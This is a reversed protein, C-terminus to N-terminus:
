SSASPAPAPASAPPVSGSTSPSPQPKPQEVETGTKENGGACTAGAEVSATKRLTKIFEDVREDSAKDVKLQFGWAQLSIPSGQDPYQSMMIYDGAGQVKKTLEAIDAQSAKAPDYTIWVAGHEMSHVAHENPIPGAYVNGMCTQWRGNHKGGSPPTSFYQVKGQVHDGNGEALVKEQSKRFNVVGSIEEARDEFTKSGEIAKWGGYGVIGAFLVGVVTFMAISGWNRTQAVRVPAVPRGKAGKKGGGAKGTGTVGAKGATGAKGGGQPSNKKPAGASRRPPTNKKPPTDGDGSGGSSKAPEGQTSSLNKGPEREAGSPTSFSM